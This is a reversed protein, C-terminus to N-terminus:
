KLLYQTQFPAATCGPFECKFTSGTGGPGPLSAISLHNLVPNLSPVPPPLIVPTAVTVIGDVSMRHSESPTPQTSPSTGDTSSTSAPTLNVPYGPPSTESATSTRRPPFFFSSSIGSPPSRQTRYDRPSAADSQTLTPSAHSLVPLGAAPSRASQASFPLSASTSFSSQRRRLAEAADENTKDAMNILTGVSPLKPQPSRPGEKPSGHQFAPLKHAPSEPDKLHASLPSTILSDEPGYGALSPKRAEDAIIVSAQNKSLSAAEDHDLNLNLGKIGESPSMESDLAKCSDRRADIDSPKPESTVISIATMAVHRLHSTALADAQKAKEEMQSFLKNDLADLDDEEDGEEDGEESDSASDSAKLAVSGGLQALQPQNGGSMSYLLVTDGLSAKTKKSKTRKKTTNASPSKVEEKPLFPPPSPSARLKPEVPKLRPSHRALPDEPESDEAASM